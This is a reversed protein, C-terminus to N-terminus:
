RKVTANRTFCFMKHGKHAIWAHLFECVDLNRFLFSPNSLIFTNFDLFILPFEIFFVVKADCCNLSLQQPFDRIKRLNRKIIFYFTGGRLTFFLGSFKSTVFIWHIKAFVFLVMFRIFCTSSLYILKSVSKPKLRIKPVAIFLSKSM